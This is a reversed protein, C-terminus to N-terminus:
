LQEPECCCIRRQLQHPQAHHCDRIPHHRVRHQTELSHMQPNPLHIFNRSFPNIIIAPTIIIPYHPLNIFLAKLFEQTPADMTIYQNNKGAYPPTTPTM